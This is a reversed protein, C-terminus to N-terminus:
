IIHREDEEAQKKLVRNMAAFGKRTSVNLIRWLAPVFLGCLQERQIFRVGKEGLPEIEFIHEGDLLGPILLRALWRFEQEPIVRTITSKFTMSPMGPATASVRLCEGESVEGEARRVFPNWEPFRKLDTLIRWVTIAPAGIEINTTIEKM